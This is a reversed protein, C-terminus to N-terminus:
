ARMPLRRRRRAFRSAWKRKMQEESRCPKLQLRSVPCQFLGWSWVGDVGGAVVACDASSDATSCQQQQMPGSCQRDQRTGPAKKQKIELM